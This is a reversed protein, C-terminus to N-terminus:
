VQKKCDVIKPCRKIYRVIHFRKKSTVECFPSICKFVKLEEDFKPVVTAAKM